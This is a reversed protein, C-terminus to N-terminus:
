LYREKLLKLTHEFYAYDPRVFHDLNSVIFDTAWNKTLSTITKKLALIYSKYWGVTNRNNLMQPLLWREIAIVTIEEKFMKVQYEFPLKDFMNKDILVEENVKLCRSYVPKNPFAVMEHLLDHPVTYTINDTFFSEKDQKLSLFSKDGLETKWFEILKYYLVPILVCGKSKLYLIDLKHKDWMPNNWGLHSCKITYVTDPTAYGDITVCLKLIDIPIEKCDGSVLSEEASIWIDIDKPIRRSFGFYSLATSGVILKM